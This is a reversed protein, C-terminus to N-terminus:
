VSPRTGPPGSCAGFEALGRAPDAFFMLGLLCIVADFSADRCSLAQGDMVATSPPM